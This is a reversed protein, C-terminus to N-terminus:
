GSVIMQRFTLNIRISTINKQRPVQHEWHHQFEGKMILLSGSHLDIRYKNTKDKKSRIDFHRTVGLSLSAITTKRGFEKEHDSHWSVKDNGHRYKNLLVTNFTENTLKEIRQKLDFLEPTWPLPKLTLASYTYTKDSDGYWAIERQLLHRKGYIEIYEEKWQITELLTRFLSHAEEPSLFDHMLLLEGGEIPVEVFSANEHNSFLDM